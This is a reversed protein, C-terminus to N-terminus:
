CPTGRPAGARAESAPQTSSQSDLSPCLAAARPLRKRHRLGPLFGLADGTDEADDEEVQEEATEPDREGVADELHEDGIVM